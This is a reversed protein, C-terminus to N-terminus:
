PATIYHQTFRHICCSKIRCEMVQTCAHTSVVQTHIHSPSLSFCFLSISLSLPAAMFFALERKGRGGRRTLWPCNKTQCPAVSGSWMGVSQSQGRKRESKSGVVPYEHNTWGEREERGGAHNYTFGTPVSGTPSTPAPPEQRPPACSVPSRGLHSRQATPATWEATTSFEVDARKSGKEKKKQKRSEKARSYM